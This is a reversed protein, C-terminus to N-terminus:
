AAWIKCSIDNAVRIFIVKINSFYHKIREYMIDHHFYLFLFWCQKQNMFPNVLWISIISSTQQFVPIYLSIFIVMFPISVAFCCKKGLLSNEWHQKYINMENSIFDHCYFQIESRAIEKDRKRHEWMMYCRNALLTFYM